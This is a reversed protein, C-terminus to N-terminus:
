RQKHVILVAAIILVLVIMSILAGKSDFRWLGRMIGPSDDEEKDPVADQQQENLVAIESSSRGAGTEPIDTKILDNESGRELIDISESRGVVYGSQLFEDYVSCGLPFQVRFEQEEIGQNIRITDFDVTVLRTTPSKKLEYTGVRRREQDSLDDFEKRSMGAPPTVESITFWARQGKIPFWIGDVQRMELVDTRQRLVKYKNDGEVGGLYKEIRVPRFGREPDIWVKADWPVKSSPDIEVSDIEIVYCLRGNVQEMAEKVHFSEAQTIAEALSSRGFEKVDYGMLVNPTIKYSFVSPNLPAIAGRSREPNRENSSKRYFFCKEGDFATKIQVTEKTHLKLSTCDETEYVENPLYNVTGRFYEKGDEYGWNLTDELYNNKEVLVISLDAKVNQILAESHQVHNILAEPSINSYVNGICHLIFFIGLFVRFKLFMIFGKSFSAKGLRSFAENNMNSFGACFLIVPVLHLEQVQLVAVVPVGRVVAHEM